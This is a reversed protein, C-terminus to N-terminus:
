WACNNDVAITRVDKVAEVWKMGEPHKSTIKTGAYVIDKYLRWVIMGSRSVSIQKAYGGTAKTWKIGVSKLSCYWINSSKDTCWVHTDSIALSQLNGSMYVETWNNLNLMSKSKMATEQDCVHVSETKDDFKDQPDSLANIGSLPHETIEKLNNVSQSPTPINYKSYFDDCSGSGTKYINDTIPSVPSKVSSSEQRPSELGKDSESEVSSLNLMSSNESDNESNIKTVVSDINQHMEGGKKESVSTSSGFLNLGEELHALNKELKSFSKNKKSHIPVKEAIDANHNDHQTFLSHVTSKAAHDSDNSHTSVLKIEPLLKQELMPSASKPSQPPERISSDSNPPLPKDGKVQSTENNSSQGDHKPLSQRCGLQPEGEKQTIVPPCVESGGESTKGLYNETKNENLSNADECDEQKQTLSGLSEESEMKAIVTDSKRPKLGVIDSIDVDTSEKKPLESTGNSKESDFTEGEFSNQSLTDSDINASLKNPDAFCLLSKKFCIIRSIM